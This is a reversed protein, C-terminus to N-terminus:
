IGLRGAIAELRAESLGTSGVLQASDVNLDIEIALGQWPSQVDSEKFGVKGTVDVFYQCNGTWIWLSGRALRILETLTWLGEGVHHNEVTYTGVSSPVPNPGFEDPV